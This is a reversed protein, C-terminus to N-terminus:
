AVVRDSVARYANFYPSALYERLSAEWHRQRDLGEARLRTCALVARAPRSGSMDKEVAAASVPTISLHRAWGFEEVLVQGIAHFTAEGHSAMQYMGSKERELLLLTNLALDSTWTPQWIRDGIEFGRRGELLAKELHPIIRGVFNKDRQEGGFFGAMRVILPAELEGVLLKESELKFQGYRSLPAPQVDEGIDGSGTNGYVLFSQPYMVQAGAAKALRIVNRTGGVITEEGIEPNQACYEVNVLAACHAIVGGRVWQAAAAMADRDRVDLEDRGPAWVQWGSAAAHRALDAGLMGKGGTVLLRKARGSPLLAQKSDPLNKLM